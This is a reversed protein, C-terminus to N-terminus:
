PPTTTGSFPDAEFRAGPPGGAQAEEWPTESRRAMLQGWVLSVTPALSRAIAVYKLITALMGPANEQDEHWADRHPNAPKPRSLEGAFFGFGAAWLLTGPATLGKRMTDSLTDGLLTMRASVMHSRAYIEREADKVQKALSIENPAPHGLLRRLSM